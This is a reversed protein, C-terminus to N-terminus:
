HSCDLLKPFAAARLGDGTWGELVGLVASQESDGPM